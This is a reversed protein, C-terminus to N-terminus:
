FNLTILVEDTHLGPAQGNAQGPITGYVPVSGSGNIIEAQVEEGAAWPGQQQGISYLVYALDSGAGQMARGGASGGPKLGGDLAVGVPGDTACTIEISGVAHTTELHSVGDGFNLSAATVSCLEGIFAQVTLKQDQVHEAAESNATALLGVAAAIGIPLKSGARWSM